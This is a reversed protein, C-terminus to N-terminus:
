FGCLIGGVTLEAWVLLRDFDGTFDREGGNASLEFCVSLGM